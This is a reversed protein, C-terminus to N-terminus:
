RPESSGSNSTTTMVSVDKVTDTRYRKVAEAGKAGSSGPQADQETYVPDPDITQVSANWKVAEGLVPAHSAVARQGTACGALLLGACAIVISSKSFMAM